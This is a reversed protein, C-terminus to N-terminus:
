IRKREVSVICRKVVTIRAAEATEAVTVEIEAEHWVAKSPTAALVSALSQRLMEERKDVTRCDFAEIIVGTSLISFLRQETAGQLLAVREATTELIVVPQLASSALLM